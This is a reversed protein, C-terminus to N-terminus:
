LRSSVKVEQQTSGGSGREDNWRVGVECNTHGGSDVACNVKGCASPGITMRLDALWGAVTGPTGLATAASCQYGGGTTNLTGATAAVKQLRLTDLASYAQIMSQTRESSSGVNKLTIAQLAAIGLLGVALILVAIMVEILGVGSERMRTRAIM